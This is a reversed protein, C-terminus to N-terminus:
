ETSDIRFRSGLGQGGLGKITSKVNKLYDRYFIIIPRHFNLEFWEFYIKSQITGNTSNYTIFIAISTFLGFIVGKITGKKNFM